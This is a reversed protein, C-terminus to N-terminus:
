HGGDAAVGTFIPPGGDERILPDAPCAAQQEIAAAETAPSRAEGAADGAASETSLPPQLLPHPPPPRSARRLRMYEDFQERHEAKWAIWRRLTRVIVRAATIERQRQLTSSIQLCLLVHM